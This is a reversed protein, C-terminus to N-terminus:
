LWFAPVHSAPPLLVPQAKLPGPNLESCGSSLECVDTIETEPPDLMRKQGGCANPLVIICLYVQMCLVWVVNFIFHVIELLFYIVKLNHTLRTFHLHDEHKSGADSYQSYLIYLNGTWFESDLISPGWDNQFIPISLRCWKEHFVNKIKRLRQKVKESKM